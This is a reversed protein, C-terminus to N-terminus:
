NSQFISSTLSDEMWGDTQGSDPVSRKDAVGKFMAVFPGSTTLAVHSDAGSDADEKDELRM